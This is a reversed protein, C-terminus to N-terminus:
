SRPWGREVGEAPVLRDPWAERCGIRETGEGTWGTEGVPDVAVHCVGQM